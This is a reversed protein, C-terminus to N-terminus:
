RGMRQRIYREIGAESYRVQRGIRVVFPLKDSNRYLYDKSMGLKAAAEETDLLRDPDGQAQAQGNGSSFLRALLLTDLKALEGRLAPIAETPLNAAKGPDNVLDVLKPIVTLTSAQAM